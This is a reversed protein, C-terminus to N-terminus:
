YKIKFFDKPRDEPKRVWNFKWNGNLTQYFISKDVKGKLASKINQYPILTNHALEKNQGIIEPNEWDPTEPM